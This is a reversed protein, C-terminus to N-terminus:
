DTFKRFTDLYDSYVTMFERFKGNKLLLNFTRKLNKIFQRDYDELYLARALPCVGKARPDTIIELKGRKNIYPTLPFIRCSLPRQYRDCNGNCFLIPVTYDTGNCSYTMDTKETKAWEPELLKYVEYEGPFLLMGSDTDGGCCASSCLRGCDAKIPTTSDFLKYLQLYIYAANM